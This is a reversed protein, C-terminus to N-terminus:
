GNPRFQHNLKSWLKTAEAITVTEKLGGFDIRIQQGCRNAVSPCSSPSHADVDIQIDTKTIARETITKCDQAIARAVSCRLNEAESPAVKTKWRGIQIECKAKSVKRRKDRIDQSEKQTEIEKQIAWEVTKGRLINRLASAQVKADSLRSCVEAAEDPREKKLDDLKRSSFQDRGSQVSKYKNRDKERAENQLRDYEPRLEELNMPKSHVNM